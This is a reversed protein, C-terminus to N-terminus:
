TKAKEAGYTLYGNEGGRPFYPKYAIKLTLPFVTELAILGATMYWSDGLWVPISVHSKGLKEVGKGSFRARLSEM